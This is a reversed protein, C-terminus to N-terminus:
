VPGCGTYYGSVMREECYLMVAMAVVNFAKIIM